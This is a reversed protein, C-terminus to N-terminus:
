PCARRPLSLQSGSRNQTEGHLKVEPLDLCNPFRAYTQNPLDPDGVSFEDLSLDGTAIALKEAEIARKWREREKELTQREIARM